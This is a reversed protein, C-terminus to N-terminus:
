LFFVSSFIINKKIKMCKIKIFIVHFKYSCTIQSNGTNVDFDISKFDSLIVFRAQEFVAWM